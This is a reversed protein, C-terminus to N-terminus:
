FDSASRSKLEQLMSHAEVKKDAVAYFYALVASFLTRGGPLKAEEEIERIAETYMGKYRYTTALFLHSLPFRREM